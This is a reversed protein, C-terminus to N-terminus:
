ASLKETKVPDSEVDAKRVPHDDGMVFHLIPRGLKIAEDFELETISLQKPNRKPCVPTQGYKHSIVGIYGAADRVMQLSSHILDVEAKAADNEMAIDALGAAKIAKVLAARHRELDTFTSSIMVGDFRRPVPNGHSM